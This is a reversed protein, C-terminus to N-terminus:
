TDITVTETSKAKLSIQWDEAEKSGSSGNLNGIKTDLNVFYFSSSKKNAKKKHLLM